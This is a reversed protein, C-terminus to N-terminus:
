RHNGSECRDPVTTNWNDRFSLPIGKKVDYRFVFFYFFLSYTVVGRRELGTDHSATDQFYTLEEPLTRHLRWTKM